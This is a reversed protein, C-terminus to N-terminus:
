VTDGNAPSKGKAAWELLSALAMPRAFYYGQGQDCNLEKLLSLQDATEIGEAVVKMGLDHCIKIAGAVIKRVAPEAVLHTVFWRDIKITTAPIRHLYALSSYGTGFDDISLSVSIDSLEQLTRIAEEPRHMIASETIELELASAALSHRALLARVRLPFEESRLNQTSINIATRFESIPSVIQLHARLAQDLVWYTFRHILRTKELATIFELTNIPGIKPHNWRTLAECGILAESELDVKPQFHLTIENRRLSETVSGLMNLRNRREQAMRQSFEAYLIDSEKARALAVEAQNIVERPRSGNVPAFGIRASLQLPMGDTSFAERVQSDLLYAIKSFNEEPEPIHIAFRERHYHFISEPPFETILRQWLARMVLDANEHGFSTAVDQMSEADIVALNGPPKSAASQQKKELLQLLARRGPLGTGVDSLLSERLRRMRHSYFFVPIAIFLADGALISSLRLLSPRGPNYLVGIYVLLMAAHLIGGLIGFTLAGVTVLALCPLWIWEPSNPMLLFVIGVAASPVLNLLLAAKYSLQFAAVPFFDSVKVRM